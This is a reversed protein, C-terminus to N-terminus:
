MRLGGFAPFSQQRKLIGYVTPRSVGLWALASYGRVSRRHWSCFRFRAIRTVADVGFSRAAIALL